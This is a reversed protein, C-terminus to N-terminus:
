VVVIILLVFGIGGGGCGGGGGCVVVVAVERGKEVIDVVKVEREEVVFRRRLCEWRTWRNRERNDRGGDVGVGVVCNTVSRVHGGGRPTPPEARLWSRM